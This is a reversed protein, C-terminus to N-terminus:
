SLKVVMIVARADSTHIQGEDTQQLPLNFKHGVLVLGFIASGMASRIHVAKCDLPLRLPYNLLEIFRQEARRRVLVFMMMLAPLGGPGAGADARNM